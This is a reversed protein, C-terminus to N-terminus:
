INSAHSYSASSAVSPSSSIHSTFLERHQMLESPTLPKCDQHVRKIIPLASQGRRRLLLSRKDRISVGGSGAGEALALSLKREFESQGPPPLTVKGNNSSPGDMHPNRQQQDDVDPVIQLPGGTYTMARRSVFVNTFLLYMLLVQHLQFHLLILM